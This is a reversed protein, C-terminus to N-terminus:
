AFDPNIFGIDPSDSLLMVLRDIGLACGACEPMGKEMAAFFEEAEPYEVFGNTKRVRRAEAFRMRQERPDTLESYANALEMGCVYLEWREAVEKNDAKLRALAARNAPYDKLFTMKGKGLEPEICDVMLTDFEDTLDANEVSKGTFRQYADAVNIIEPAQSFDVTENQYEIEYSAKLAFVSEKILEFTFDMLEKYDIDTQYWELMTFEPRHRSGFEGKRFCPGLQYIKEYGACVMQKMQLEPSTRLFGAAASIGEIYEEPAPANILVPTSVEMFGRSDFFARVASILGARIELRAKINKLEETTM